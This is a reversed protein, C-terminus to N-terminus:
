SSTISSTAAPRSRPRTPPPHPVDQNFPSAEIKLRTVPFGEGTLQAVWTRATERQASLTGRGRVTLMPQDPDQGRDLVIRAYKLGHQEAWAALREHDGSPSVTLHTEFHGTFERM